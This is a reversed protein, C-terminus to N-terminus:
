IRWGQERIMQLLNICPVKEETCVVPIKPRQITGGSEETVVTLCPNHTMALAIVFPDGASKNTREDVFKPYNEMLELVRDQTPNDIEIFMRERNRFWVYVEEGRRQLERLVEKSAILTGAEIIEDMRAWFTPFADIPYREAWAAVLSSTDISYQPPM